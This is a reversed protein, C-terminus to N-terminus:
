NSNQHQLAIYLKYETNQIAEIQARTLHAAYIVGASSTNLSLMQEATIHQAQIDLSELLKIHKDIRWQYKVTNAIFCSVSRRVTSSRIAMIDVSGDIALFADNVEESVSRLYSFDSLQAKSANVLSYLADVAAKDFYGSGFAELKSIDFYNQQKEIVAFIAETNGDGRLVLDIQEKTEWLFSLCKSLIECEESSINAQYSEIANQEYVQIYVAFLANSNNGSLEETLRSSLVTSSPTGMTSDYIFDISPSYIIRGNSEGNSLVGENEGVQETSSSDLLASNDTDADGNYFVVTFATVAIVAALCACILANRQKAKRRKIQWERYSALAPIRDTFDPVACDELAKRLKNKFFM